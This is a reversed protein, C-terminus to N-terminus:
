DETFRCSAVYNGSGASGTLAIRVTNAGGTAMALKDGDAGPVVVTKLDPALPAGSGRNVIAEFTVMASDSDSTGDELYVTIQCAVQNRTGTPIAFDIDTNGVAYSGTTKVVPSSSATTFSLSGAGDTTLVDGNSGDTLPFAYGTNAVLDGAYFNGANTTGFRMATVNSVQTDVSYRSDGADGNATWGLGGSLEYTPVTSTYPYVTIRGLTDGDSIATPGAMSGRAKRLRLEPGDTSATAQTFKFQVNSSSQIDGEPQITYTLTYDLGGTSVSPLLATDGLFEVEQGNQVTQTSGLTAAIDWQSMTGITSPLGLNTRADTPNNAGTGGNAVNLIGAVVVAGTTATNPTLGTTGMSISSVIDTDLSVIVREGTSGDSQTAIGTGGEITLRNSDRITLEPGTDGQFKWNTMFDSNSSASTIRGQADVTINAAQYFGASVTTDALDITGSVTITGGDLGTGATISQVTGSGGGGGGVATLTATGSGNDTLVLNPVSVILDSVNAIDPSGDSERIRISDGEPSKGTFFEAM